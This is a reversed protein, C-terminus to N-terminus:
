KWTHICSAAPGSPKAALSPRIAVCGYDHARMPTGRGGGRSRGGTRSSADRGPRPPPRPGRDSESVGSPAVCSTMGSVIRASQQKPNIRM